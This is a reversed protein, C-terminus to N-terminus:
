VTLDAEYRLLAADIAAKTWAIDGNPDLLVTHASRRATIFQAFQEDDVTANSKIGVKIHEGTATTVKSWVWPIVAVPTKTIGNRTTDDWAALTLEDIHGDTQSYEYDDEDITVEDTLAYNDAGASRSFQVASDGDQVVEEVHCDGLYEDYGLVWSDINCRQDGALIYRGGHVYCYTAYALAAGPKTDGSFDISLHGDVKVKVFGTAADIKAWVQFHFWDNNSVEIAGAEALIENIYLDHTHTVINWRFDLYQSSGMYIIIRPYYGTESSESFWDRPYIYLSVAPQTPHQDKFNHRRWDMHSFASTSFFVFSAAGDVKNVTDVAAVGSIDVSNFHTDRDFSLGDIIPM